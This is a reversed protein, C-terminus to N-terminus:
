PAIDCFEQYPFESGLRQLETMFYDAVKLVTARLDHKKAVDRERRSGAAKLMREACGLKELTWRASTMVGYMLLGLAWQLPLTAPPTQLDPHV